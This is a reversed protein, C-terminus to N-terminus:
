VARALIARALATANAATPAGQSGASVVVFVRGAQGYADETHSYDEPASVNGFEVVEVTVGDEVHVEPPPIRPLQLRSATWAEVDGASAFRFVAVNLRQRASANAGVADYTRSISAPDHDHAPSSTEWGLRFGPVEDARPLIAGLTPEDLAVARPAGAPGSLCGALVCAGLIWAPARM